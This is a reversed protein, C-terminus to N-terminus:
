RKEQSHCTTPWEAEVLTKARGCNDIIYANNPPAVELSDKTEVIRFIDATLSKLNVVTWQAPNGHASRLAQLDRAALQDSKIESAFSESQQSDRNIEPTAAIESDIDPGYVVGSASFLATIPRGHSDISASSDPAVITEGVAIIADNKDFTACYVTTIVNNVHRGGPLSTGTKKQADWTLAAATLIGDMATPIEVDPHLGVWERISTAVALKEQSYGIYGEIACASRKGIAVLKKEGDILKEHEGTGSIKSDVSVLVMERTRGIIIETGSEDSAAQSLSFKTKIESFPIAIMLIPSIGVFIIIKWKYM